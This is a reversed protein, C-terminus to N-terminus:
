VKDANQRRLKDYRRVADKKAKRRKQGKTEFYEKERLEKTLGEALVLRKLSRLAHELNSKNEKEDRGPKVQVTLGRKSITKDAHTHANGMFKKVGNIILLLDFM